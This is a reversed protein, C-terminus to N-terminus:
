SSEIVYVVFVDSVDVVAAVLEIALTAASGPEM